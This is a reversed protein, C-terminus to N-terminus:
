KSKVEDKLVLVNCGSGSLINNAVSGLIFKKFGKRGHTNLIILDYNNEKCHNNIVFGPNLGFMLEKNIKIKKKKNRRNFRKELSNIFKDFDRDTDSTIKNIIDEPFEYIDKGVMMVYALTLNFNTKSYLDLAYDIVKKSPEYIDIPILVNKIDVERKNNGSVALIPIDTSNLIKQTTSGVLLKGVMGLGTIGLVILDSKYKQSRKLIRDVPEGAVIEYDFKIKKSEM